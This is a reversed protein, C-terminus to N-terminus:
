FPLPKDEMNEEPELVPEKVKKDLLLIQDAVIETVYKQQGATDEFTRNHLKGEVYLLSGKRVFDNVLTALGRWAIITHWETKTQTEGNKLRFTETTALTLKAVPTGDQLTKYEPDKGTNGLLIVKNIGRM